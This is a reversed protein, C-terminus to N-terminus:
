EPPVSSHHLDIKLNGDKDKVFGMSFYVTVTTDDVQTLVTTTQVVARNKDANIGVLSFDVKKWPNLAFGTDEPFAANDGVFYSLAGEFTTRFPIDRAVTPKFLVIGRDYNYSKNIMNIAAQVYDEGNRHATSISVLGRGWEQLARTVERRTIAGSRAVSDATVEEKVTGRLSTEGFASSFCLVLLLLVAFPSM